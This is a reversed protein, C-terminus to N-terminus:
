NVSGVADRQLVAGHRPLLALLLLADLTAVPAVLDLKHQGAYAIGHAQAVDPAERVEAVAIPSTRTLPWPLPTGRPLAPTHVGARRPMEQPPARHPFCLRAQESM